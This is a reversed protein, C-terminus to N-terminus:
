LSLRQAIRSPICPLWESDYRRCVARSLSIVCLGFSCQQQKLSNNCGAKFLPKGVNHNRTYENCGNLVSRTWVIPSQSRARAHVCALLGSLCAICYRFSPYVNAAVRHLSLSYWCRSGVWEHSLVSNFQFLYMFLRFSLSEESAMSELCQCFFSGALEVDLSEFCVFPCRIQPLM